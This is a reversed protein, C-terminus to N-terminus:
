FVPMIFLSMHYTYLANMITGNGYEHLSIDDKARRLPASLASSKMKGIDFGCFGMRCVYFFGGKTLILAPMNDTLIVSERGEFEEERWRWESEDV